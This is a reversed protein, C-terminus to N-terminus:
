TRMQEREIERDQLGAFRETDGAASGRTSHRRRHRRGVAEDACAAGGCAACCSWSRHPAFSSCVFTDPAMSAEVSAVAVAPEAIPAATASCGCSDAAIAGSADDHQRRRRHLGCDMGDPWRSHWRYAAVWGSYCCCRCRCCTHRWRWSPPLWTQAVDLDHVLVRMSAVPVWSAAAACVTLHPWVTLLSLSLSLSLSGKRIRLRKEGRIAFAQGWSALILPLILAVMLGTPILEVIAIVIEGSAPFAQLLETPAYRRALLLGVVCAAAAAAAAGNAIRIGAFTGVAVLAAAAALLPLLTFSGLLLHAVLESESESESNTWKGILFLYM